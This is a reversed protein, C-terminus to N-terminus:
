PITLITSEQNKVYWRDYDGAAANRADLSSRLAEPVLRGYQDRMMRGQSTEEELIVKEAARIRIMDIDGVHSPFPRHENCLYMSTLSKEPFHQFFDVFREVAVKTVDKTKQVLTEAFTSSKSSVPLLNADNIVPTNYATGSKGGLASSLANNKTSDATKCKKKSAMAQAELFVSAEVSGIQHFHEASPM